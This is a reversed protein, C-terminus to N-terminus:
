WFRFFVPYPWSVAGLRNCQNISIITADYRPLNVVYNEGRIQLQLSLSPLIRHSSPVTQVRWLTCFYQEIQTTLLTPHIRIRAEHIKDHGTLCVPRSVVVTHAVEPRFRTAAECQRLRGRGRRRGRGAPGPRVRGGRDGHLALTLTLKRRVPWKADIYCKNLM